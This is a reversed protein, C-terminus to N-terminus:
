LSNVYISRLIVSKHKPKKKDKKQQIRNLEKKKVPNMGFCYKLTDRVIVFM